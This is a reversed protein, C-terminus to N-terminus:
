KYEEKLLSFLVSDEIIGNKKYHQRLQGEKNFGMNEMLKLSPENFPGVFAEIRNLKMEEFGFNLVAPLVESMIGKNKYADNYLIYGIEARDHDTYWTHFGCWGIMKQTAKELIHFFLFSKNFMSHGKQFKIKEKELALRDECNLFNMLENENFNKFVYNYVEPDVIRLDLRPTSIVKFEM